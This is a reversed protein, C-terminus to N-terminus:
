YGMERKLDQDIWLRALADGFDGFSSYTEGYYNKVWPWWMTYVNPYALQAKGYSLAQMRVLELMGETFKDEDTERMVADYLEDYEESYWNSPNDKLIAGVGEFVLGLEQWRKVTEEKTAGSEISELWKDWPTRAWRKACIFTADGGYMLNCMNNFDKRLILERHVVPEKVKLTTQVGIASWYGALLSAANQQTEYSPLSFEVKFGDPYGAETLLEKAKEPNYTYTEIVEAPLVDEAPVDFKPDWGPPVMPSLAAVTKERFVDGMYMKDWYDEYDIAMLLARRVRVDDTPPQDVRMWIYNAGSNPQPWRTMKLEPARKLFDDKYEPTIYNQVDLKGARFAARATPAERIIIRQVEDAFPIQYEKGGVTATDWYNPNRVYTASVETTYDELIWPGTGNAYRWDDMLSEEGLEEPDLNLEAVLGTEELVERSVLERPYIGLYWSPGLYFKWRPHIYECDFKLAYKDLAEISKIWSWHGTKLIKYHRKYVLEMDYADMERGNVPPKDQFYVGPRVHFIITHLDPIDYSEILHNKLMSLPHNINACWHYLNEGRPGYREIDGLLAQEVVPAIWTWIHYNFGVPDWGPPAYQSEMTISIAGGYQPEEALVEVEEEVKQEPMEEETAVEETAVEETAVEEEEAVPTTKCSVVLMVTVFCSVLLWLIRKRGM